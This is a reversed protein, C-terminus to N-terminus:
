SVVSTTVRKGNKYADCVFQDKDNPPACSPQSPASPSNIAQADLPLYAPFSSRLVGYGVGGCVGGIMIPFITSRLVEGWTDGYCKFTKYAYLNMGFVVASFGTYGGIEGVSRKQGAWMDLLYILWVSSLAAMGMPSASIDFMGLGRITCPNFSSAIEPPITWAGGTQIDVTGGGGNHGTNIRTGRSPAGAMDAAAAFNRWKSARQVATQRPRPPPAQSVSEGLQGLQEGIMTTGTTSRPNGTGLPQDGLTPSVVTSIVDAAAAAITPASATSRGYGFFLGGLGWHVIVSIIGIISTVSYRFSGNVIDSVFGSLLTIDPSLAGLFALVMKVNSFFGGEGSGSSARSIGARISASFDPFLFVILTIVLM